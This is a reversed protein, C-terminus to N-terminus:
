SDVKRLVISHLQMDSIRSFRLQMSVPLNNKMEFRVKTKKNGGILPTWRESFVPILTFEAVEVKDKVESSFEVEMEYTGAELPLKPTYFVPYHSDWEKRLIVSKQDPATYGAHFMVCAPFVISEGVSPSKWQSTVLIVMDMDASGEELTITLGLRGYGEKEGASLYVWIWNSSNLEVPERVLLKDDLVSRYRLFAKGRMRVLWGFGKMLFTNQEPIQVKGGITEMRLYEGNSADDAKVVSSDRSNCKEMEWLRASSVFEWKPLIRPELSPADLIKFAWVPGDQCLLKLRQHRLLQMITSSVAFPSVKEPFLDEHLIIYRIKRVILEDLQSDTVYGKNISEFRKFVDNFYTVNVLPSYGNVLRIRYLSAYYLYPSSFHSDGPWIPIVLVHALESNENAEATVYEYATQKNVLLSVTAKVRDKYEILMAIVLAMACIWVIKRKQTSSFIAVLSACIGFMFLPSLLCFVKSPQRIMRFYPVVKRAARLVFGDGPGNVGLAIFIILAISILVLFIKLFYQVRLVSVGSTRPSLLLGAIITALAAFGVYVNGPKTVRGFSFIDSWVHSFIRIERMERGQQMTSEAISSGTHIILMGSAILVFIAVILLIQIVKMSDKIKMSKLDERSLLILISFVPLAFTCFLFTNKDGWSIFLMALGTILSGSWREDRIAMDLGLLVAPLWMMACGTPSGGFLMAWRYPIIVGGVVSALITWFDSSYRRVFLWGFIVSGWISLFQAFNYGFASGGILAGIMWFLSFPFFSMLRHSAFCKDYNFEYIDEKGIKGSIKERFLWYHYLMQLHDGPVMTRVSGKEINWASAPIGRSVYRPLPFSFIAWIVLSVVFTFLGFKLTNMGDLIRLGESISLFLYSNEIQWGKKPYEGFAFM